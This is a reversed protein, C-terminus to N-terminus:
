SLAFGHRLYIPRIAADVAELKAYWSKTQTNEATRAVPQIESQAANMAANFEVRANDAIIERQMRLLMDLKNVDIAPDKVAMAVFDLLTAAPRDVKEIENM